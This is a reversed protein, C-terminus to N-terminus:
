QIFVPGDEHAVVVTRDAREHGVQGRGVGVRGPFTPLGHWGLRDLEDLLRGIQADTYSVCAYYGHILTRALDDSCPGKRPIGHYARLEGWNTTAYSPANKPVFPNGALKIADPKYLDWYKKPANFPLHPKYFGMALVFTGAMPVVMSWRLGGMALAHGMGASFASLLCIRAKGLEGLLLLAAGVTSM